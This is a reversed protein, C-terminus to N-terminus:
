GAGSSRASRALQLLRPAADPDALLQVPPAGGLEPLPRSLWAIVGPGTLAFRLDAVLRALIRLRRADEGSPAQSEQESAWRGFTRPTIGLAEAIERQPVELRSAVWRAIEKAPREESVPAYEAMRQFLARLYELALRTARREAVPDEEDLARLARVQAKEVELLLYPDQDIQDPDLDALADALSRVLEVIAPPVDRERALRRNAESLEVAVLEPRRLDFALSSM